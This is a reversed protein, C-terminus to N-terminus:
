AIFGEMLNMLAETSPPVLGLLFVDAVGADKM